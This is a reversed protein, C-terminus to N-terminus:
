EVPLLIPPPPPAGPLSGSGGGLLYVALDDWQSTDSGTHWVGITGARPRDSRTDTCTLQWGSPESTGDRWVKAQISNGGSIPVVRLRFRYWANAVPVVGTHAPNCAIPADPPHPEMEFAGGNYTRLRYYVDQKPYQSYATVGVGGSSGSHRMRGRVEYNSWQDAGATVLHSHTNRSSSSSSLVRNGAVDVVGFQTDSETLSNNGGTDFWGPVHTGTAYTEFSQSWSSGTPPPPPPSSPSSPPTPDPEPAPQSPAPAPPALKKENSPYSELFGAGYATLAVYVTANDGVSLNYSFVGGSAAPRGVDITNTYSGPSSGYHIRFGDVNAPTPHSWRLTEVRAEAAQGAVVLVAAGVAAGIGMRLARARRAGM